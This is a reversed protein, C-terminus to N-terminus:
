PRPTPFYEGGSRVACLVVREKDDTHYPYQRGGTELVIKYGPTVVQAYMVGMQPCGLSADPWTMAEVSILQIQEIDIQLKQALSKTAIQILKQSSPDSPPTQNPMPVGNNSESPLPTNPIIQGGAVTVSQTPTSSGTAMPNGGCSVMLHVGAMALVFFLIKM